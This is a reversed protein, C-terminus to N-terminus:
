VERIKMSRVEGTESDIKVIKYKRSSPNLPSLAMQLQNVSESKVRPVSFGLTVFWHKEDESIEVEELRLDEISGGMMDQLSLLYNQAAWVAKKVDTKM